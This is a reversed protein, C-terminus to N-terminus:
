MKGRLYAHTAERARADADLVADLTDAKAGDHEELLVENTEAIGHWPMLGKLFADVAVENSASLWAPATGGRKGAEFALDLCRFATRDPPEFTLSQARSWDTPTILAIQITSRM